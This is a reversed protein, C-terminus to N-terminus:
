VQVTMISTHSDSRRFLVGGERDMITGQFNRQVTALAMLNHAHRSWAYLSSPIFAFDFSGDEIQSHFDEHDLTVFQARCLVPSLYQNVLGDFTPQWRRM